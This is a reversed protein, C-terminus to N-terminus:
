QPNESSPARDETTLLKIEDKRADTPCGEWEIKFPMFEEIARLADPKWTVRLPILEELIEKTNERERNFIRKVDTQLKRVQMSRTQEMVRRKEAINKRVTDFHNAGTAAKLTTLPM